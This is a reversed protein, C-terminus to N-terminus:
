VWLTVSIFQKVWEIISALLNGFFTFLNFVLFCGVPTFYRDGLYSGNDLSKVDALIKPFGLLTILFLIFINYCQPWCKKLVAMYNPKVNPSELATGVPDSTRSAYYAFKPLSIFSVVCALIIAFATGFYFLATTKPAAGSLLVIILTVSFFM